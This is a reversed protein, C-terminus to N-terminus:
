LPLSSGLFLLVVHKRKIPDYSKVTGEYFRNILTFLIFVDYWASSIFMTFKMQAFPLGRYDCFGVRITKSSLM